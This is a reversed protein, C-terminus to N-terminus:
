RIGHGRESQRINLHLAVMPLRPSHDGLPKAVIRYSFTLTSHGGQSERVAFGRISKQTVYLGRNDGEPTLFVLYNGQQEIVSAFAPDLRVYAAGGTLAAEGFDEITPTSAQTSYSRVARGPSTATAASCATICTGDKYYGGTIGVNGDDTVFFVQNGSSNVGDFILGGGGYGLVAEASSTLSRGEIGAFSGTPAYGLVGQGSVIAGPTNVYGVSTVEFEQTGAGNLGLFLAGSGRALVAPALGSGSSVGEVSAFAGTSDGSSGIVGFGSTSSGTVGSGSTSSGTVGTGRISKGLVGADFAGATSQDNGVVGYKSNASSTSNWDTWGTLGNGQRSVGKIGQGTSNNDYEICPSSSTCSPDVIGSGASASHVKEANILLLLTLCVPIASFAIWARRKIM